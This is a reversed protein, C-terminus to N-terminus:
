MRQLRAFSLSGEPRMPWLRSLLSPVALLGSPFQEPEDRPNTGPFARANAFPTTGPQDGLGLSATEAHCGDIGKERM